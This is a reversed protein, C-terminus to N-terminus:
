APLERNKKRKFITLEFSQISSNSRSIVIAVWALLDKLAKVMSTTPIGISFTYSIARVLDWFTVGLTVLSRWQWLATPLIYHFPDRGTRMLIYSVELWLHALRDLWSPVALIPKEVVLLVTFTSLVFAVQPSPGRIFFEGSLQYSWVFIISGTFKHGQVWGVWSAVLLVDTYAGEPKLLFIRM